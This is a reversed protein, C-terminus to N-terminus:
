IPALPVYSDEVCGSQPADLATFSEAIVEFTGGGFRSYPLVENVVYDCNNWTIIDPHNNVGSAGKSANRFAFTSAIFIRRPVIQGEERRMIAAPDAQTVVAMIGDIVREVTPTTRGNAGVVDKRRTVTIVDSLMPDATLFSVDLQPM